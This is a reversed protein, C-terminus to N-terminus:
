GGQSEYALSRIRDWSADALEPQLGRGKFSVKRLRFRGARKRDNLTKRLGEEILSTVTTRERSALKRAEDLLTDSINVTTKM